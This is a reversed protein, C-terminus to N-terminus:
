VEHLKQYRPQLIVPVMTLCVLVLNGIMATPLFNNPFLAGALFFIAIQVLSIPILMQRPHLQSVKHGALRARVNWLTFQIDIKNLHLLENLLENREKM